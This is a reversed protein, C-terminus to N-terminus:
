DQSRRRRRFIFDYLISCVAVVVAFIFSVLLNDAVSRSKNWYLLPYLVFVVAGLVLGTTVESRKLMVEGTRFL